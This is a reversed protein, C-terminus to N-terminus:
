GPWTRWAYHCLTVRQSDISTHVVDNVSEWPLALTEKDHNGKILHKRGNLSAFLKPLGDAPYRHAFDGLHIVTDGHRVVANWEARMFADMQEVDDFPRNALRIIGAHGWHNDSVLFTSVSCDGPGSRGEGLIRFFRWDM